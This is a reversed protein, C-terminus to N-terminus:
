RSWQCSSSTQTSKSNIYISCKYSYYAKTSLTKCYACNSHPIIFQIIILRLLYIYLSMGTKNQIQAILAELKEKQAILDKLNEFTDSRRIRNVGLPIQFIGFNSTVKIKCKKYLIIFILLITIDM